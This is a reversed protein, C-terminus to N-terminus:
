LSQLVKDELNECGDKIEQDPQAHQSCYPYRPHATSFMCAGLQQDDPRRGKGRFSHLGQSKVEMAWPPWLVFAESFVQNLTKQEQSKIGGLPLPKQLSRDFKASDERCLAEDDCLQTYWWWRLTGETVVSLEVSVRQFGQGGRPNKNKNKNNCRTQSTPKTKLRSWNDPVLDNGM